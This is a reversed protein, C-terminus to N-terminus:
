RINLFLTEIQSFEVIIVNDPSYEIKGIGKLRILFERIRKLSRFASDGLGIVIGIKGVAGANIISGMRHKPGTSRELEIAVFCRPNSNTVIRRDIQQLPEFIHQYDDYEEQIVNQNHNVYGDINFPGIAYDICPCYHLDRESLADSAGRVIPWEAIIENSFIDLLPELRTKAEATTIIDTM